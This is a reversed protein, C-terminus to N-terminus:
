QIEHTNEESQNLKDDLRLYPMSRKQVTDVLWMLALSIASILFIVAFMKDFAFAKKVRIMAISAAASIRREIREEDKVRKSM